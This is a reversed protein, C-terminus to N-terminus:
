IPARSWHWWKECDREPDEIQIPPHFHLKAAIKEEGLLHWLHPIFGDDDIYAVRRLPEFAIRFPQVPIGFQQAIKFAGWRWPRSEDLRTTGSPFLAVSQKREVICQGVKEATENRSSKRDRNVMVVGAVKCANGFIPWRKLQTKAVFVVPVTAMLLPIDVYSIHNGVFLIPEARVPEGQLTVQVRMLNLMETGWERMHNHRVKEFDPQKAAQQIRKARSITLAMIRRYRDARELYSESFKTAHKPGTLDKTEEM